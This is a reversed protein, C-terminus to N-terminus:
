DESHSNKAAKQVYQRLAYEIEKNVSRANEKALEQVKEMLDSDIKLPYQYIGAM